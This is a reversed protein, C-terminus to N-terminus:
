PAAARPAEVIMRRIIDTMSIVGLPLLGGEVNEVVVLRHIRRRTMTTVAEALPTDLSCAVLTPTMVAAATMEGFVEPSRGQRALVLDTQSVVGLARGEAGVVVLAHVAHEVLSRAVEVLTAEPPCTIVGEHMLDRVRLLEAVPPESGPEARPRVFVDSGQPSRAPIRSAGVHSPRSTIGTGLERAGVLIAMNGHPHRNEYMLQHALPLEDLSFTRSLCPDVKGERVLENLGYAQDDNAFHSGQLRKQRMWLYRLDVVANYGTTGACTVVMGGTDCVFISTPITDEGPHEFVLRPNRKEGLADWVAKGFQRVGKLWEGYGVTDKWHPLMGWHKFGKRNVCGKAGLRVCYEAKDDSSIVAIPIANKAKAIQIAMSGLGGAGGWVLVADNERIAHEDWGLLMRYATAGVLMYAAAAEWTLHTPKPLCQHAQVKTFQAFSGWNSEYGWIRFTPSFMPDTGSRVMPCDASWQGCHMVVQDGVRVNSVKRGVQYVIGSGDSGGVHFREPEGAKNRAAIVDVPVGLAAWVNNYNVGAAMVYVLVEDDGIEPVDVVERQFASRPEGFREPRVVWAHMKEPVVGLPPAEGVAFLERTRTM